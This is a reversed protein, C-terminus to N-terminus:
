KETSISKGEKVDFIENIGRLYRTRARMSQALCAKLQKEEQRDSCKKNRTKVWKRQGDRLEDAITNNKMANAYVGALESDYISLGKSNCIAKEVRTLEGKCSFSPYIEPRNESYEQVLQKLGKSKEKSSFRPNLNLYFDLSNSQTDKIDMDFGADVLLLILHISGNEVAYTLASRNNRVPGPTCRGKREFKTVNSQPWKKELLYNVADYNNMHASFMLLDKKYETQIDGRNFNGSLHSIDEPSDVLLSLSAYKKELSRRRPFQIDFFSKLNDWDEFEGDAIKQLFSFDVEYNYYHGLSYYSGPLSEVVITALEEADIRSYGYEKTYLSTLEQVANGKGELMTYFERYSWVDTYKWDEFQKKQQDLKQEDKYKSRNWINTVAWPRFIAVSSFYVGNKSAYYEPRFTGCGGPSQVIKEVAKKYAAFFPYAQYEESSDFIEFLKISCVKKSSGSREIEYVDRVLNSRAIDGEDATIYWKNKYKFPVNKNWSYGGSKETSGVPYVPIGSSIKERITKEPDPEVLYGTYVDGRWSHERSYYILERKEGYFDILAINFQGREPEASISSFTPMYVERSKQVGTTNRAVGNFFATYHQLAYECVADDNSSVIHPVFMTNAFVNFALLSLLSCYCPLIRM